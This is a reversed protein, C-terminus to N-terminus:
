QKREKMLEAKKRLADFLLPGRTGAKFQYPHLVEWFGNELKRGTIRKQELLVRVRRPSMCLHAAVHAVPLWTEMHQRERQQAAYIATDATVQRPRRGRAAPKVASVGVAQSTKDVLTLKPKDTPQKM